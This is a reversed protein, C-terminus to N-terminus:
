SSVILFYLALGFMGIVLMLAYLRVYGTQIGRAFSTGARVLGVAGGIIVGQILASEIVNRGFRGFAVIPRVIAYDYLEDWYWKNLLFQHLRPFRDILRVTVGRRRMYVFYALAIGALSLSGGVASILWEDSAAPIFEHAYRSDEFTPDLFSELTHSVGPILVVGSVLSLLALPAMAAKMPWSREAIAHEPGPFGVDIDEPEGTVPNYPEVHHIHGQELERAEPVPDGHFVRFVMRFAYFATLLAGAFGLVAIILYGGGREINFALIADKSFFGSTFPFAALALAGILFTVYTFPMAKRFGGMKDLSQEGGMASIVSGAGMFLLAKFFAHTMLHFLGGFYAFTSVGVFMYGIQSLTSYAIVRKLDTVVLAISAAMILTLLGVIAAVDAATPALEFLPHMRAILYVGATVMTAAHILASVPTPGEMADALWTHLPLQASKAAAGVLILICAAILTGDNVTYVDHAGAFVGGYDLHGTDRLLLFAAIVLAVDGLVNIVFAKRGAATATRRRYWFSILLYSAAGVFAWGIILIVFNGALVLVLMSFVFFNLYAFYRRYGADSDMYAVSYLHILSSVGTVVLIIMVSLPDVLIGMDANVGVSEVYKFLSSTLHREDAPHSQLDILALIAFVFSGAIALTGIWGASRGPLVKWLLSIILTGALPLALVLWAALTASM